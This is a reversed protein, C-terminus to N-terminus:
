APRWLSLGWLAFSLAGWIAGGLGLGFIASVLFIAVLRFLSRPKAYLREVIQTAVPGDPVIPQLDNRLCYTARNM